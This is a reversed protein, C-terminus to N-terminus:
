PVIPYGLIAGLASFCLITIGILVFSHRLGAPASRDVIKGAIMWASIAELIASIYFISIFYSVGGVPINLFKTSGLGATPITKLFPVIFNNVIIIAIILYIGLSIYVLQTYPKLETQRDQNYQELDNFLTVSSSLVEHTKGGATYAESVIQGVQTAYAHRLNQTAESISKSFDYGMSFKTMAIGIQYSVPGYDQKSAELLARPLILGSDTSQLIDRLFRPINSEVSKLYRYNFYSVLAVPALAFAFALAILNDIMLANGPKCVQTCDIPVLASSLPAKSNIELGPNYRGIALAIAIIVIFIIASAVYAVYRWSSEVYIMNGM